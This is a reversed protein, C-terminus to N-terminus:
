EGNVDIRALLEEPTLVPISSDVFGLKDRTVIVDLGSALACAVQLNDEFDEGPLADAEELVDRNVDCIHFTELCTRIAERASKRDKQRRGIYFIDTITSATIFGTIQGDEHARWVSSSASVWPERKFLVDLLVNTDLLVRM